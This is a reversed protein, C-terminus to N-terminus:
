KDERIQSGVMTFSGFLVGAVTERESRCPFQRSRQTSGTNRGTTASQSSSTRYQLACTASPHLRITPACVCTAAVEEELVVGRKKEM